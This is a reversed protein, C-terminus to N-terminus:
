RAVGWNLIIKDTPSREGDTDDTNVLWCDIVASNFTYTLTVSPPLNLSVSGDLDDVTVYESTRDFSAILTSSKESPRLQISVTYDTLNKPADGYVWRWTQFFEVGRTMTKTVM